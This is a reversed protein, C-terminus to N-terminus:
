CKMRLVKFIMISSIEQSLCRQFSWFIWIQSNKPKVKQRCLAKVDALAVRMRDRLLEAQEHNRIRYISNEYAKYEVSEIQAIGLRLEPAWCNYELSRVDRLRCRLKKSIEAANPVKSVHTDVKGCELKRQTCAFVICICCLLNM